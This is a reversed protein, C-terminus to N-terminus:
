LALQYANDITYTQAAMELRIKMLLGVKYCAVIQAKGEKVKNQISLSMFNKPINKLSNIVKSSKLCRLTSSNNM